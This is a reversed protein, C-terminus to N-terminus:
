DSDADYILPFPTIAEIQFTIKVFFYYFQCFMLGILKIIKLQIM